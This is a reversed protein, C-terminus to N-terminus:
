LQSRFLGCFHDIVKTHLPRSNHAEATYPQSNKLDHEFMKLHQSALGRDLV